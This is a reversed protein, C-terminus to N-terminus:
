DGGKCVAAEGGLKTAAGDADNQTDAREIVREVLSVGREDRGEDHAVSDDHFHGACAHEAVPRGQWEEAVAEGWADDVDDGAAAAGLDSGENGWGGMKRMM